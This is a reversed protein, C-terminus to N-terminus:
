TVSLMEHHPLILRSNTPQGIRTTIAMLTHSPPLATPLNAPLVLQILLTQSPLLTEPQIIYHIKLIPVLPLVSRHTSPPSRLTCLALARLHPLSSTWKHNRGKKPRGCPGGSNRGNGELLESAITTKVSSTRMQVPRVVLTKSSCSWLKWIRSKLLSLFPLPLTTISLSLIPFLGTEELTAIYNARRARFAAQADANKKKRLATDSVRSSPDDKPTSPAM